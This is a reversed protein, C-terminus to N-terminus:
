ADRDAQALVEGGSRPVSWLAPALHHERAWSVVREDSGAAALLAAGASPYGLYRGLRGPARRLGVIELGTAVSRGFVGLRVGAKGVDHLLAAPVLWRHQDSPGQGVDTARAVRAVRRAM